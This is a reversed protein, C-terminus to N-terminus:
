LKVRKWGPPPEKDPVDPKRQSAKIQEIREQEVLAKEKEYRENDLYAVVGRRADVVELERAFLNKEPRRPKQPESWSIAAVVLFVILIAGGITLIQEIM